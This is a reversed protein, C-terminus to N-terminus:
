GAKESPNASECMGCAVQWMRSAFEREERGTVEGYIATTRLSAHGLWRQVLHSPVNSQFAAVGFSHRLGKPAGAAGNVTAEALVGKIKRWATVRCWTWLRIKALLASQQRHRIEFQRDIESALASPIPVERIMDARRRKLTRLAVVENDLDIAAPTLALAESLRAGTWFLILCFLRVDPETNEAAALFRKREAANLYKCAGFPNHLTLGPRTKPSVIKCETAVFNAM